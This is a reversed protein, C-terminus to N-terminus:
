DYGDKDFFGRFNRYEKWNKKDRPKFNGSKDFEVKIGKKAAEAKADAVQEPMVGLAVSTHDRWLDPTDAFGTHEAIINRVAERGKVRITDPAEGMAFFREHREGSNTEYVYVPVM